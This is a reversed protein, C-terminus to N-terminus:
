SLSLTIICFLPKYIYRSIHGVVVAVVVIGVVVFSIALMYLLVVGFM